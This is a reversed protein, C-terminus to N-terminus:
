NLLLVLAEEEDQEMEYAVAQAHKAANISERIREASALAQFALLLTNPPDEILEAAAVARKITKRQAKNKTEAAVLEIEALLAEFHQQREEAGYKGLRRELEEPDHRFRGWGVVRKATAAAIQFANNQFANRQFATITVPM